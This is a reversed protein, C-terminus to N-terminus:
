LVARRPERPAHRVIPIVPAILDRHLCRLAKESEREEIILMIGLDSAGQTVVPIRESALATIARAPSMPDATFGSGICACAALKPRVTVCWSEHDHQLMEVVSDAVQEDVMFALYHGSSACIAVPSAGARAALEFVQAASEPAGFLDRREVTILALKRRVTIAGAGSRSHGESGILTGRLHPRFTNRVRVPIQLAVVPMLTRPHLVKAGFWAMRAAEVYTLHQLLRANSVLRPDATMVGDVDTYIAVDHCELAAGVLTASYDSGNRGLTTILGEPTHGIFGPVIPVTKQTVLPHVLDRVQERTEAQLPEAGPVGVPQSPDQEPAETVIAETRIPSASVGFECVAAAVLLVSFREGCAAIAAGLEHRQPEALLAEVAETLLGFVEDLERLLPERHLPNLVARAAAEHHRFRVQELEDQCLEREGQSALLALRLLQDTVGSQASVVVVPFTKESEAARAIIQAVRRVREGDGVSTGGFKLVSVQKKM